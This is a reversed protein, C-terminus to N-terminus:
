ASQDLDTLAPWGSEIDRLPSANTIDSLPEILRAQELLRSDSGNEQEFLEVRRVIDELNIPRKSAFVMHTGYHEWIACHEFTSQLGTIKRQHLPDREILNATVVGDEALKSKCIRFFEETGLHNAADGGGFFVDLLIIDYKQQRSELDSRSDAARIDFRDCPMFGFWDQAVQMMNPDIDSGDFRCNHFHHQTTIGLRGGGFGAFYVNCPPRRQWFASVFMAQAYHSILTVPATVDVRSMVESLKKDKHDYCYMELLNDVRRLFIGQFEGMIVKALDLDDRVPKLRQLIEALNQQKRLNNSSKAPM